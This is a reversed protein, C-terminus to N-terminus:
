VRGYHIFTGTGRIGLARSVSSSQESMGFTKLLQLEKCAFRYVSRMRLRPSEKAQASVKDLLNNDIIKM